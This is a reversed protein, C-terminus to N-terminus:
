KRESEATMVIVDVPLSVLTHNLVQNHRSMVVRDPIQPDLLESHHSMVVIKLIQLDGCADLVLPM